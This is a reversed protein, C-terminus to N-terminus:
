VRGRRKVSKETRVPVIILEEEEEEEDEDESIGAMTEEASKGIRHIHSEYTYRCTRYKTLRNFYNKLTAVLSQPPHHWKVESVPQQKKRFQAQQHPAYCRTDSPPLADELTVHPTDILVVNNVMTFLIHLENRTMTLVDSTPIVYIHRHAHTVEEETLSYGSLLSNSQIEDFPAQHDVYFVPIEPQGVGRVEHSMCERLTQMHRTNKGRRNYLHISLTKFASCLYGPTVRPRENLRNIMNGVHYALTPYDRFCWLEKVNHCLTMTMRNFTQMFRELQDPVRAKFELLRWHRELLTAFADCPRDFDWSLAVIRSYDVMHLIDIFVQGGQAALVDMTGTFFVRGLAKGSNHHALWKLVCSFDRPSMLHVYPVLICTRVPLAVTQGQNYTLLRDVTVCHEDYFSAASAAGGGGGGKQGVRQQGIIFHTTIMARVYSSSPVIVLINFPYAAAARQILRVDCARAIDCPTARVVNFRRDSVTALPQANEDILSNIDDFLRVREEYPHVLSFLTTHNTQEYVMTNKDVVITFLILRKPAPVAEYLAANSNDFTIIWPEHTRTIVESQYLLEMVQCVDVLAFDLSEASAVSANNSANSATSENHRRLLAKTSRRLDIDSDDDSEEEEDEASSTLLAEQGYRIECQKIASVIAKIACLNYRKYSFAEDEGEMTETPRKRHHWANDAERDYYPLGLLRCFVLAIHELTIAYVSSRNYMQEARAKAEIDHVIHHLVLRRMLATKIRRCLVPDQVSYKCRFVAVMHALHYQVNQFLRKSDALAPLSAAGGVGGGGGGSKELEVVLATSKVSQIARADVLARRFTQEIARMLRCVDDLEPDSFHGVDFEDYAEVAVADAAIDNNPSHQDINHYIYFLAPLSVINKCLHARIVQFSLCAHLADHLRQMSIGDAGADTNNARLTDLFVALQQQNSHQHRPQQAEVFQWYEDHNRTSRLPTGSGSGKKEDRMRMISRYGELWRRLSRMPQADNSWRVFVAEYQMTANEAETPAAKIRFLARMMDHRLKNNIAQMEASLTPSPIAVVPLPAEVSKNRRKTDQTRSAVQRHITSLTMKDEDEDEEADMEDSQSTHRLGISASLGNSSANLGSREESDANTITTPRNSSSGSSSPPPPSEDDEYIGGTMAANNYAMASHYFFTQHLISSLKNTNATNLRVSFPPLSGQGDDPPATGILRCTTAHWRAVSYVTQDTFCALLDQDALAQSTTTDRELTVQHEYLPSLMFQTTTDFNVCYMKMLASTKNVFIGLRMDCGLATALTMVDICHVVDEVIGALRKQAATQKVPKKIKDKDGNEDDDDDGDVSRKVTKRKRKQKKGGTDEVAEEGEEVAEENVHVDDGNDGPESESEASKRKRKRKKQKKEKKDSHRDHKHTHKKKKKKEKEEEQQLLSAAKTRLRKKPKAQHQDHDGDNSDDEQSDVVLVSPEDQSAASLQEDSSMHCQSLLSEKEM